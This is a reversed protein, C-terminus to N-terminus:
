PARGIRPPVGKIQARGEELAAQAGQFPPSQDHAVDWQNLAIIFARGETLAMDAIRLDQAELGLTADLLLVVVEAFDVARRTDAASLKELKETVKAKRRLGATDILRVPRGQLEWDISMSDRTIGAELEASRM